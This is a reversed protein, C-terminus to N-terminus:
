KAVKAMRREIRRAKRETQDALDPWGRARLTKAQQELDEVVKASRKMDTVKANTPAVM